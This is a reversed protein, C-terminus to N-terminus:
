AELVKSCKMFQVTIYMSCWQFSSRSSTSRTPKTTEEISPHEHMSENMCYDIYTSVLCVASIPGCDDCDDIDDHRLCETQSQKCRDASQVVTQQYVDDATPQSPGIESGHRISRCATGANEEAVQRIWRVWQMAIHVPRDIPPPPRRPRTVCSTLYISM